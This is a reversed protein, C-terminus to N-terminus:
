REKKQSQKLKLYDDVNKLKQLESNLSNEYRSFLVDFEKKRKKTLSKLLKAVKLVHDNFTDSPAVTVEKPHDEQLYKSHISLHFDIEQSFIETIKSFDESSKDFHEEIEKTVNIAKSGKLKELLEKIHASKKLVIGKKDTIEQKFQGLADIAGKLSKSQEETLKEFPINKTTQSM